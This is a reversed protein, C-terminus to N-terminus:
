GTTYIGKIILLKLSFAQNYYQKGFSIFLWPVVVFTEKNYNNNYNSILKLFCM